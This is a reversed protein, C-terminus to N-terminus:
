KELASNLKNEEDQQKYNQSSYTQIHNEKPKDQKLYVSNRSDTFKCKDIYKVTKLRNHTCINQLMELTVACM